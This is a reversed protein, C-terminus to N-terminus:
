RWSRKDKMTWTEIGYLVVGRVCEQFIKGQTCYFCRSTHRPLHERFEKSSCRIRAVISEEVGDSSGIIDSLYCYKWYKWLDNSVVVSEAQQGGLVRIEGVCDASIM